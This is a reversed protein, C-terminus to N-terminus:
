STSEGTKSELGEMIHAWGIEKAKDKAIGKYRGFLSAQQEELKTNIWM